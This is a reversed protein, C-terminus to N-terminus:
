ISKEKRFSRFHLYGFCGINGDVLDDVRGSRLSSNKYSGFNKEIIKNSQECTKPKWQDKKYDQIIEICFDAGILIENRHSGVRDDAMNKSIIFFFHMHDM